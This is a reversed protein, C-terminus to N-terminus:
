DDYQCYSLLFLPHDFATRQSTYLLCVYDVDKRMLGHARIAQNIHHMLTMNDADSLNDVHFFTEAKKVGSPTLTATKGKEDVLYDGDVDDNNDKEDM